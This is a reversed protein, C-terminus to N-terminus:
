TSRDFLVTIGLQMFQNIMFPCPMFFMEPIM